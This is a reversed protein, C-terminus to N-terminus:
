KPAPRDDVVQDVIGVIRKLWTWVTKWPVAM